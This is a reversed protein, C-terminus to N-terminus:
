FSSEGGVLCHDLCEQEIMQVFHCRPTRTSAVKAPPRVIVGNTRRKSDNRSEELKDVRRSLRFLADRIPIHVQRHFIPQVPLPNLLVLRRPTMPPKAQVHLLRAVKVLLWSSLSRVGSGPEAAERVPLLVADSMSGPTTTVHVAGRALPPSYM